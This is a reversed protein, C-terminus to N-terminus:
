QQLETSREKIRYVTKRTLDNEKAIRSIAVGEALQKIVNHYIIRKKPDRATASYELPKGKYVNNK